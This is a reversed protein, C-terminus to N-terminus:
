KEPWGGFFINSTKVKEIEGAYHDPFQNQNVGPLCSFQPTRADFESYFFM